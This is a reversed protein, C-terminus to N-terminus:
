ECEYIEPLVGEGKFIKRAHEECEELRISQFRVRAGTRVEYYKIM